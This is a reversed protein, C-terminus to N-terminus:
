YFDSAAVSGFMVATVRNLNSGMIGVLVSGDTRGIAPDVSSVTPAVGTVTITTTFEAQSGGADWIHVHVSYTGPAAYTHEGSVQFSGSGMATVTTGRGSLLDWSKRTRRSLSSCLLLLGLFLCSFFSLTIM